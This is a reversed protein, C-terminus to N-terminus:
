ALGFWGIMKGFWVLWGICGLSHSIVKVRTQVEVLSILGFWVSWYGQRVLGFWGCLAVLHTLYLRREARTQVEIWRILGFWVM